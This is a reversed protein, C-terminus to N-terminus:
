DQQHQWYPQPGRELLRIQHPLRASQLVNLKACLASLVAVVWWEDVNSSALVLLGGVRGRVWPLLQAFLYSLLMRLRAQINQLAINEAYSGGHARFKPKHGTALGFLDRIAGIVADMNIDVHYSHPSNTIQILCRWQILYSLM